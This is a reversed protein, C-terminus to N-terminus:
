PEDGPRYSGAFRCTRSGDRQCVLREAPLGTATRITRPLLDCVPEFRVGAQYYVCNHAEFLWGDHQDHSLHGLMDGYDLREMLALLRDRPALPELEDRVADGLRRAVADLLERLRDEAAAEALVLDLLEDYRKPFHGEAAHTLTFRRAPRGPGSSVAGSEEVLGAARLRNLHHRVTNESLGLADILEPVSAAGTRKLHSLLRERSTVNGGYGGNGHHM